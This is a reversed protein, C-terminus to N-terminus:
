CNCPYQQIESLILVYLERAIESFISQGSVLNFFMIYLVTKCFISLSFHTQSLKKISTM